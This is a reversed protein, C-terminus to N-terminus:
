NLPPMDCTLGNISSARTWTRSGTTGAGNPGRGPATAPLGPNSQWSLQLTSCSIFKLTATGWDLLTTNAGFNGGFGGALRYKVPVTVSRTATNNNSADSLPGGGTIFSAFGDDSYTYWNLALYRIGNTSDPVEGIEIDIGEGSHAPDFFNGTLYGNIPMGVLGGPAVGPYDAPTYASNVAIDQFGGDPFNYFNLLTLTFPFNFDWYDTSADNSAFNDLVWTGRDFFPTDASVYSVVTNPESVARAFLDQSSGQTVRIGPFLPYTDTRGANQASRVLTLLTVSNGSSCPYRWVYAMVDETPNSVGPRVAALTIVKGQSPFVPGNIENRAIIDPLPDFICSPPYARYSNTVPSSSPKTAIAVDIHPGTSRLARHTPAVGAPSRSLGRQALSEEAVAAARSALDNSITANRTLPSAASAAFAMTMALGAGAYLMFKRM